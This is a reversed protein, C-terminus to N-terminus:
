ATGQEEPAGATRRVLLASISVAQDPTPMVATAAVAGTIFGYGASSEGLVAAALAGALQM